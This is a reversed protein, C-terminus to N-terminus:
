EHLRGRLEGLPGAGLVVHLPDLFVGEAGPLKHVEVVPEHAVGQDYRLEIYLLCTYAISLCILLNILSNSHQWITSQM